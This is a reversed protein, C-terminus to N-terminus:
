ELLEIGLNVDDVSIGGLPGCKNEKWQSKMHHGSDIAGLLFQVLYM